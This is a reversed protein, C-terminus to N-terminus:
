DEESELSDRLRSLEDTARDVEADLGKILHVGLKFPMFAILRGDGLPSRKFPQPWSDRLVTKAKTFTKDKM